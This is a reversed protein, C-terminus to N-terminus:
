IDRVGLRYKFKQRDLACTRDEGTGSRPKKCVQLFHWIRWCCSSTWDEQDFFTSLDRHHFVCELPTDISQTFQGADADRAM